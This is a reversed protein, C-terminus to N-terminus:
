SCGAEPLLGYTNIISDSIVPTQDLAENWVEKRM